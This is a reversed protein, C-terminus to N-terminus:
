EKGELKRKLEEGILAEVVPELKGEMVRDLQQISFGIRHDTVRNQPYNYTRIKESRDGTGIKSRREDGEKDAKEQMIKDYLRAKLIRLASAKNEHQSKGDQCTVVLGTPTHTVRVASDTTNVSQGGAGSSRYTDIRVDNMHLEVDVDEAEPLVVVTATSTHVRGQSETQPVRQVRHAGSEYKMFSFVSNGSISFEVQSYGGAASEELNTVELKWHKIEAYKIYMRFLDGAFINAESGGAAGRIEVIVNKEDNPDKPVLLIKLEEEIEHVRPKIEDLEMKAMEVIEPDDEHAMEKLDEINQLLDKYEKYLTVIPELHSQERSLETLKSIDKTIEPNMLMNNIENYRELITELRNVM